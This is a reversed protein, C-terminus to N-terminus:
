DAFTSSDDETAKSEELPLTACKMTRNKTRCSRMGASKMRYRFTQWGEGASGTGIKEPLPSDSNVIKLSM